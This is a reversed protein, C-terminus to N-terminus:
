GHHRVWNYFFHPPYPLFVRFPEIVVQASNGGVQPLLLLLM